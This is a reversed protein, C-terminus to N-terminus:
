GHGTLSRRAQASWSRRRRQACSSLTAELRRARSGSRAVQAARADTACRLGAVRQVGRCVVACEHSCARGVGPTSPTGDACAIAGDSTTAVKLVVWPRGTARQHLYPRLSSRVAAAATGITVAVGHSQLHKVGANGFKPDPDAIAIHVSRLGSAVLAEDCPPTTKGPGRHCPELTVYCTAGNFQERTVGSAAAARLASAEAHPGGKREHYGEALVEAGDKAVIVCGVRPTTVCACSPRDQM